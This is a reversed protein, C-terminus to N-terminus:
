DCVHEAHRCYRNWVYPWSNWLGNKSSNAFMPRPVSDDNMARSEGLRITDGICVELHLLAHSWETPEGIREPDAKYMNMSPNAAFMAQNYLRQAEIVANSLNWVLGSNTCGFSDFQPLTGPLWDKPM